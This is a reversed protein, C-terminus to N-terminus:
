RRPFSSSGHVIHKQPQALRLRIGPAPVLQGFEPPRSPTPLPDIETRSSSTPAEKPRGLQLAPANKSLRLRCRRTVPMGNEQESVTFTLSVRKRRDASIAPRPKIEAFQNVACVKVTM